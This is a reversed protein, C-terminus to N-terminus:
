RTTPRGAFQFLLGSVDDPFEDGGFYATLDWILAELLASDDLEAHRLLLRTLGAEGLEDGAPSPCETVGDSMLFLRDGPHLQAEIRQYQADPILGVPLGGQGLYEVPGNKRLIAPHPHGAQVLWVLGTELDIEAYVLTFYQDVQMDELMMRNLRGAVV